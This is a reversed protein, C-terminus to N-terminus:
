RFILNGRLQGDFHDSQFEVIGVTSSQTKLLPATFGSGSPEHQSRWVCQRPDKEGRKRNPHGYYNGKELLNIKDGEWADSIQQGNCGKLMQGAGSTITFRTLIPRSAPKGKFSPWIQTRVLILGMTREMFTDMQTFFSASLTAFVQQLCRSARAESSIETTLKIM